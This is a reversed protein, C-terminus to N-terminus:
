DLGADPRKAPPDPQVAHFTHLVPTNMGAEIIRLFGGFESISDKLDPEVRHLKAPEPCDNAWGPWFRAYTEKFSSGDVSRYHFFEHLTPMFREMWNRDHKLSSGCLPRTGPEFYDAMFAICRREAEALPVGRGIAIDELLGNERHMKLVVDPMSQFIDVTGPDIIIAISDVIALTRDTLAFGIELPFAGPANQDLGTTEMDVWPLLTPDEYTM